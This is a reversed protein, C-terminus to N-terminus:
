LWVQADPFKRKSVIDGYSLLSYNGSLDKFEVIGVNKM